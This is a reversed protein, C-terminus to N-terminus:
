LLQTKLSAGVLGGCVTSVGTPREKAVVVFKLCHLNVFMTMPRRPAEAIRAVVNETTLLSRM